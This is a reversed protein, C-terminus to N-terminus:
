SFALNFLYGVFEYFQTEKILGFFGIAAMTNLFARRHFVNAATTSVPTPWNTEVDMVNQKETRNIQTKM